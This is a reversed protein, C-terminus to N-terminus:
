RRLKELVWGVSLFVPFPVWSQAPFFIATALSAAVRDHALNAAEPTSEVITVRSGTVLFAHAIGAGMRGGGLVGVHAPLTV